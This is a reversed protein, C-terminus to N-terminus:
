RAPHPQALAAGTQADFVGFGVTALKAALSAMESTHSEIGLCPGAILFTVMGDGWPLDLGTGERWQAPALAESVLKRMEEPKRAFVADQTVAVLSPAYRKMLFATYSYAV